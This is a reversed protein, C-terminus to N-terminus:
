SHKMQIKSAKAIGEWLGNIYAVGLARDFLGYGPNGGYEGWIGRGHDPRIYGKYNCDYLAKMVEGMDISGDETFHGSEYFSGDEELKINRFHVFAIKGKPVFERIIEPVDNNPDEGLSGVCLTFTNSPSDILQSLRRLDERNKLIRPLGFVSYPPDDPHVAMKVGVSEAVPIIRKLFYEYNRWLDEETIGEYEKVLKRINEAKRSEGVGPMMRSADSPKADKIKKMDFRLVRSGDPLEYDMETRTANFVPMYTYCIVKIGCSSLNRINTCYNEILKDRTPKGLKIDENIRFSDVVELKLGRKKAEDMLKRIEDVPWIEGLPLNYLSTVIGEVGPIQAIYDLSVPDNEGHWRFIKKM